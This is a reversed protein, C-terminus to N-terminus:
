FWVDSVRHRMPYPDSPDLGYQGINTIWAQGAIKEIIVAYQGAKATEVIRSDFFTGTIFINRFHEETKILCKASM